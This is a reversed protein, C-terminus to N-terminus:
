ENSEAEAADIYQIAEKKREGTEDVPIFIIANRALDFNDSRNPTKEIYPKIINHIDLFERELPWMQRQRTKVDLKDNSAIRFLEKLIQVAKKKLQPIDSEKRKQKIKKEHALIVGQDMRKKQEEKEDIKMLGNVASLKNIFNSLNAINRTAQHMLSPNPFDPNGECAAIINNKMEIFMSDEEMLKEENVIVSYLQDIEDGLKRVEEYEDRSALRIMAVVKKFIEKRLEIEDLTDGL